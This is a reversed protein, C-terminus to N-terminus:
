LDSVLVPLCEKAMQDGKGSCLVFLGPSGIKIRCSKFEVERKEAASSSTKGSCIMM